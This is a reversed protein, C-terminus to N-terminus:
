ATEGGTLPLAGDRLVAALSQPSPALAWRTEPELQAIMERGASLPEAVLILREANRAATALLQLAMPVGAASHDSGLWLVIAAAERAQLLM